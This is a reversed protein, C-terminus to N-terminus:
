LLIFAATTTARWDHVGSWLMATITITITITIAVFEDILKLICATQCQCKEKRKSILTCVQM